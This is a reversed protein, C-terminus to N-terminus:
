EMLDEVWPKKKRWANWAQVVFHTKEAYQSWLRAYQDLRQHMVAAPLVDGTALIAPQKNLNALTAHAQAPSMCALQDAADNLRRQLGLDDLGGAQWCIAEPNQDFSFLGDHPENHVDPHIDLSMLLADYLDLGFEFASDALHSVVLLYGSDAEILLACPVSHKLQCARAFWRWRPQQPSVQDTKADPYRQLLAADLAITHSIGAIAIVGKKNRGYLGQEKALGKHFFGQGEYSPCPKM